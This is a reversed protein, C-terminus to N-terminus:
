EDDDGENLVFDTKSIVLDSFLVYTMALFSGACGSMLVWLLDHSIIVWGCILGCWFGTCQHCTILDHCKKCINGIADRVPAFLTSDVIINTMGIVSLVFFMIKAM